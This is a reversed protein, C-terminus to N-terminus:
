IKKAMADIVNTVVNPNKPESDKSYYGTQQHSFIAQTAQIMIKDNGDDSRATNLLSLMSKLANSKHNNIISNHMQANYNKICFIISYILISYLFLRTFIYKSYSFYITSTVMSDTKIASDKFGNEINKTIEIFTSNKGINILLLIVLFIILLGATAGWFYARSKHKNAIIQFDINKDEIELKKKFDNFKKQEMILSERDKLLDIKIKNIEDAEKKIRQKEAEIEIRTQNLQDNLSVEADLDLKSLEIDEIIAKILSKFGIFSRNFEYENDASANIEKLRLKYDNSTPLFKSLYLNLKDQTVILIDDELKRKELEELLERLRKLLEDM